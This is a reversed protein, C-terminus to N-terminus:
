LQCKKRSYSPAGGVQTVPTQVFERSRAGQKRAEAAVASVLPPIAFAEGPQALVQICHSNCM